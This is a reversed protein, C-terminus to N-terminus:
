TFLRNQMTKANLVYYYVIVTGRQIRKWDWNGRAKEGDSSDGGVIHCKLPGFWGGDRAQQFLVM